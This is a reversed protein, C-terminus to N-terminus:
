GSLTLMRDLALKADRRVEPEVTVLNERGLHELTRLLKEPTIRAMNPCISRHLEMVQKDPTEAALRQVLHTETGIAIASGQPAERVTRVIYDTSGVADAMAVVEPKCEPHVVIRADPHLRRMERIHEVQFRTHVFCYGPWLIVKARELERIRTEDLPTHPDWLFMEPPSIGLALATNRGLFEDPFFFVKQGRSFAWQFARHANSSTCVAGGNRGCFAKLEADSNMYVIPCVAGAVPTIAHWAQEVHYIDAMDAMWCGAEMDPIQVTQHPRALIAASEAMFHVGCFVIHQAIEDAAAKQSLAFSDGLVDGLAVIEPRQYHHTLILLKKGLTSKRERIKQLTEEFDSNEAM